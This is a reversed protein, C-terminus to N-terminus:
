KLLCKMVIEEFSPDIIQIPEFVVQRMLNLSYRKISINPIKFYNLLFM